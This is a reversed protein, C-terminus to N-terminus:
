RCLMFSVFAGLLAGLVASLVAVRISVNHRTQTANTEDKEDRLTLCRAVNIAYRSRGNQVNVMHCYEDGLQKQMINFDGDTVNLRKLMEDKYFHPNFTGSQEAYNILAELLELRKETTKKL